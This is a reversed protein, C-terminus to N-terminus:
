KTFKDILNDSARQFAKGLYAKQTVIAVILDRGLLAAVSAATIALWDGAGYEVMINGAVVGVPVSFFFTILYDKLTRNTPSVLTRMIGATLSVAVLVLIDAIGETIRHWM